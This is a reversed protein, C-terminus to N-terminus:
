SNFNLFRDAQIERESNVAFSFLGRRWVYIVGVGGAGSGGALGLRM